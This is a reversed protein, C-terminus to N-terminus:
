VPWDSIRKRVCYNRLTEASYCSMLVRLRQVFGFNCMKGEERPFFFSFCLLQFDFQPWTLLSVFIQLTQLTPPDSPTFHLSNCDLISESLCFTPWSRIYRTISGFFFVRRPSLCQHTHRILWSILVKMKKKWHYIIFLHRKRHHLQVQSTFNKFAKLCVYVISTLIYKNYLYRNIYWM